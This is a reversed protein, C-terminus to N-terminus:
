KLIWKWWRILFPKDAYLRIKANSRSQKLNNHIIGLVVRENKPKEGELDEKEVIKEIFEPKLFIEYFWWGAAIQGKEGLKYADKINTKSQLQDLIDKLIMLDREFDQSAVVFTPNLAM